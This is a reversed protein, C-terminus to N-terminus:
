SVRVAEQDVFRGSERLAPLLVQDAWTCGTAGPDSQREKEAWEPRHSGGDHLLALLAEYGPRWAQAHSFVQRLNRLIDLGSFDLDGYFVVPTQAPRQLFSRVTHAGGSPADERLYVVSAGPELLRRAGGRFGAAYLLIADSWAPQRQAAMTEFTLLNEIFLVETPAPPVSALLQIPAEQFQSPQAGLVRLLEGRSVLVKSRGQFVRASLERLPLQGGDRCAQYLRELASTAGEIGLHELALMPSRALYEALAAGQEGFRDMVEGTRL